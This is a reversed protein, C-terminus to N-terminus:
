GASVFAHRPRQNTFTLNLFLKMSIPVAGQVSILLLYDRRHGCGGVVSESM